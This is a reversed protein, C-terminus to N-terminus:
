QIRKIVKAPVGAVVCNDPVDHVVVAGAGIVVNNGVKIPGAIVSNAGFEINSGLIPHGSGEGGRKNNGVTVGQRLYIKEGCEKPFFNIGGFHSIVFNPPLQVNWATQIGFKYTFHKMRLWQFFWFPYLLKSKTLYYCIRHNVTYKFGPVTFYARWFGMGYGPLDSKIRIILNKIDNKNGM